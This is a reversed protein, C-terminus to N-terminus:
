WNVRLTLVTETQYAYRIPEVRLGVEVRKNYKATTWAADVASLIHNLFVLTTATTAKKYAANMDNRKTEYKLRNDNITSKDENYRQTIEYDSMSIDNNERFDDWGWSFQHYKGIMEYYQQDQDRHLGHSFQSSEWDRLAERTNDTGDYPLGAHHAIWKWYEDESWHEAAYAHYRDEIRQGEKNFNLYMAWAAVEIGVFAAAKVYSKAYVQGGGPVAASMIFALKPNKAKSSVTGAGEEPAFEPLTNSTMFEQWDNALLSTTLLLM